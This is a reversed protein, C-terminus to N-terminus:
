NPTKSSQLIRQEASQPARFEPDDTNKGVGHRLASKAIGICSRRYQQQSSIPRKQFLLRSQTAANLLKAPNGQM